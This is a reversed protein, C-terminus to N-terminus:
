AAEGQVLGRVDIQGTVAASILATRREQLLDITHEAAASLEDLRGAESAILGIICRQEVLPPSPIQIEGLMSRSIRDRTGGRAVVEIYSLYASTSLVHVIYQPDFRSSPKLICNDVSTIMKVGLNPALCARGALITRSSQLRCILVDNPEVETCRLNHFSEESIYRFGQEEYVGTGVNGCQILRVGNETIYPTEIWDGDIFTSQGARAVDKLRTTTWHAPMEGLWEIGSPKMPANPNLGKTVAHSIVAQHKEKLLEILRQQEAVLADIKATEHDLFTAICIQEALPPLALHQNKIDEAHVNQNVGGHINKKIGEKFGASMFYHKLFGSASSTRFRFRILYSAYAVPEAVTEVLGFTGAGGTRAFVFDGDRLLFPELEERSEVQPCQTFDIKGFDHLDTIRLLKVGSDVYGADSYYGQRHELLCRRLTIVEWHEPVSGLWAEGSDIHKPYRPFSM